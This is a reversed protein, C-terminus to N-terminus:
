YGTYYKSIIDQTKQHNAKGFGQSYGYIFIKKEEATNTHKIRGGGPCEIQYTDAVDPIESLEEKIFKALIDAHYGCSQYGRVM